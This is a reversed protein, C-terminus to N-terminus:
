REEVLFGCLLLNFQTVTRGNEIKSFICGYNMELVDSSLRNLM